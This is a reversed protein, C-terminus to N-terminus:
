ALGNVLKTLRSKKRSATNKKVVGNGVATDLAKIASRLLGAAKDKEKAAAAKRLDKILQRIRTKVARNKERQRASSKLAKIAAKKIPM